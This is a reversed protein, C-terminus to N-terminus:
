HHKLIDEIRKLRSNRSELVRALLEYFEPDNLAYAILLKGLQYNSLDLRKKLDNFAKLQEANVYTNVMAM